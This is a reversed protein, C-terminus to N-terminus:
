FHGQRHLYLGEIGSKDVNDVYAFHTVKGPVAEVETGTHGMIEHPHPKDHRKWEPVLSGCMFAEQTGDNAHFVALVPVASDSNPKKQLRSETQRIEVTTHTQALWNPNQRTVRESGPSFAEYQLDSQGGDNANSKAGRAPLWSFFSTV